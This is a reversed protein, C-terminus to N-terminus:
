RCGMAEALNAERETRQSKPIACARRVEDSAGRVKALAETFRPMRDPCAYRYNIEIAALPVDRRDLVSALFMSPDDDGCVDLATREWMEWDTVNVGQSKLSAQWGQRDIEQKGCAGLLIVALAIWVAGRIRRMGRLIVCERLFYRTHRM